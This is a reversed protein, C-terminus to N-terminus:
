VKRAVKICKVHGRLQPADDNLVQQPVGFCDKAFLSATVNRGIEISNAVFPTYAFTTGPGYCVQAGQYNPKEYACVTEEEDVCGREIIFSGIKMNALSVIQNDDTSSIVQKNGTFNAGDYIEITIGYDLRLRTANQMWAPPQKYNDETGAYKNESHIRQFRGVPFCNRASVTDGTLKEFCTNLYGNLDNDRYVSWVDRL